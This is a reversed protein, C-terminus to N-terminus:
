HINGIKKGLETFQVWSLGEDIFTKVLGLKKLHTLNGKRQEDIKVNGNVLVEGGWNPSDEVLEDFLKKSESTFNIM